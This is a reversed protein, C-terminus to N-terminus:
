IVTDLPLDNRGTSLETTIRQFRGYSDVDVKFSGRKVEFAHSGILFAINDYHQCFLVYLAADEKTLQITVKDEMALESAM